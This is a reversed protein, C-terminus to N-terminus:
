SRTDDFCTILFQGPIVLSQRNTITINTKRTLVVDEAQDVNQWKSDVRRQNNTNQNFPMPMLLKKLLMKKFNTQCLKIGSIFIMANSELFKSIPNLFFQCKIIYTCIKNFLRLHFTSFFLDMALFPFKALTLSKKYVKQKSQRVRAM